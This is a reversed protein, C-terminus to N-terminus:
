SLELLNGQSSAELFACLALLFCESISSAGASNLAEAHDLNSFISGNCCTIYVCLADMEYSTDSWIIGHMIV